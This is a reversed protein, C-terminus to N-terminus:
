IGSLGLGALCASLTELLSMPEDVVALSPRVGRLTGQLAQRWNKKKKKKKKKKQSPSINM